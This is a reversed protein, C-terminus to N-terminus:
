REGSHFHNFISWYKDLTRYGYGRENIQKAADKTSLNQSWFVKARSGKNQNLGQAQIEEREEKILRPNRITNILHIPTSEYVNEGVEKERMGIGRSTEWDSKEGVKYTVQKKEEPKKPGPHIRDTPDTNGTLMELISFFIEGLGM